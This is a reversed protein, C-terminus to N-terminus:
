PTFDAKAAVIPLAFVFTSGQGLTSEVEVSGGHAEIIQRVSALGLGTGEITGRVNAARRFPAFLHPLDDAPIGLGSDQVRLVAYLEGNRHDSRLSIAIVGGAPSYKTANSLLNDLVSDLRSADIDAILHKHDTEFQLTHKTTAQDFSEVAARALAVLDIPARQLDLPQGNQLHMADLLTNTQAQMRLAAREIVALGRGFREANDGLAVVRRQLLQTQGLLATLPNKLDHSVLALLEDRARIAQEAEARAQQEADQLRLNELAPALRGTLERLFPLDAESFHRNSENMGLALVGFGRDQVMLPLLVHSHVGIQAIREQQEADQLLADHTVLNITPRLDPRGTQLVHWLPAEDNEKLVAALEADEPKRWAQSARRLKGREVMYVICVDAVQPVLLAAIRELSPQMGLSAAFIQGVDTLLRVQYQRHRTRLATQVASLLTVIRIPRELVLLNGLNQRLAATTSDALQSAVLVLVPLDSWVPQEALSAALQALGGHRLAEEHILVVGAGEKIAVCLAALDCCLTCAIGAEAFLAVSLRGDRATPALLLVREEYTQDFPNNM